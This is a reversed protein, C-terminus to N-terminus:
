LDGLVSEPASGPPSHAPAPHPHILPEDRLYQATTREHGRGRIWVLYQAVLLPGLVVMVPFTGPLWGLVGGLFVTGIAGVALVIALLGAARGFAKRFVLPGATAFLVDGLGIGLWQDHGVPWALVPTFPLGSLRAILEDTLPLLSTAVFDYVVLAGGLIALDRARLGSQAWVNTVAVVSLILVGNNVALYELSATGAERALVIDAVV